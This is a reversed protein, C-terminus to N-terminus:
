KVTRLIVELSLGDKVKGKVVTTNHAPDLIVEVNEQEANLLAYRGDLVLTIEAELSWGLLNEPTPEIRKDPNSVTLRIGGKEQQVMVVCPTNVRKLLGAPFQLNTSDFIAYGTSNDKKSRVIHAKADRRLVDYLPTANKMGAALDQMGSPSTNLRMIYEYWGDDQGRHTLYTSIIPGTLPGFTQTGKFLTYNQNPMVYLGVHHTTNFMWPVTSSAYNTNYVAKSTTLQNALLFENKGASVPEQLLGTEVLENNGDNSIGSALLVIDDGFYFYSKKFRLGEAVRGSYIEGDKGNFEQVFIGNGTGTSVGGVFASTGRQYYIQELESYDVQISTVGPARSFNYGPTINALDEDHRQLLSAGYVRQMGSAEGEKVLSVGGINYFLYGARKYQTHYFNRAIGRTYVQWEGRRHINSIDYSLTLNGNQKPAPTIGQATMQAVWEPNRKYSSENPYALWYRAMDSDIAASGDPSGARALNLFGDSPVRHMADQPGNHGEKNMVAFHIDAMHKMREQTEQSVAFPTKSMWWVCDTAGKWAGVWGYNDFRNGWHHFWSGDPKLTGNTAPSYNLAIHDLWGKLRRLNRAKEPTDPATLVSLFISKSATNLDDASAQWHFEVSKNPFDIDPNNWNQENYLIRDVNYMMILQNTVKDLLGADDLLDRAYYVGEAFGRGNYWPNPMGGYTTALRVLDIIMHGLEEKQAADGTQCWARGMQEMQKCLEENQKYALISQLSRGHMTQWYFLPNVGNAYEGTTEIHYRAHFQRYKDMAAAPLSAVKEPLPLIREAITSFASREEETLPATPYDVSREMWLHEREIGRTAVGHVRHTVFLMFNDVYLCGAPGAIQTIRVKSLPIEKKLPIISSLINWGGKHLYMTCTHLVSGDASIVDLKFARTDSGTPVDEQFLGLSLHYDTRWVYKLTADAALELTAGPTTTWEMSKPSSMYFKSSSKIASSRATIGELPASTDFDYLWEREHYYLLMDMNQHDINGVRCDLYNGQKEAAHSSPAWGLFLVVCFLNFAPKM